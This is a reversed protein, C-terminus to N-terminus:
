PLPHVHSTGFLADQEAIWIQGDRTVTIATPLSLGTAAVTCMHTAVDCANVTGGAVPTSGNGEVALWSAEDLEVVYLTGDPGFALDMISTFGSAALTCAASPCLVHRSGAEIRWVRSLGAPAPFGTLEGVYYAGDPGVAVSTAVPQIIPGGPANPFGPNPQPTLVAVWDIRGSRDVILLDNAAADSVLVTGGNLNAMGFPNSDPEGTNWVQDPNVREEYAGLDAIEVVQGRSVHYLRRGLEPPGFDAGTIAYSSGVGIPDVGTVGPLATVLSVAGARLEVVGRQTEAVLLSGDPNTGLGFIPATLSAQTGPSRKLSPGGGGETPLPAVDTCGAAALILLSASLLTPLARARSRM